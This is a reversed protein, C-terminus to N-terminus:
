VGRTAHGASMREAEVLTLGGDFEAIAAREDFESQQKKLKTLSM